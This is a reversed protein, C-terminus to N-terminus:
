SLFLIRPTSNTIPKLKILDDFRPFGTVKLMKDPCGYRKMMDLNYRGWLLKINAAGINKRYYQKGGQYFFPAGHEITIHPIDKKMAEVGIKNEINWWAQNTLVIDPKKELDYICGETILQIECGKQKLFSFLNKM